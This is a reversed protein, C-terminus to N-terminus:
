AGPGKVLVTWNVLLKKAEKEEFFSTGAEKSGQKV